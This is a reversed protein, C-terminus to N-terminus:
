LSVIRRICMTVNSVSFGEDTRFIYIYYMGVSDTRDCSVWSTRLIDFILEFGSFITLFAPPFPFHSHFPNNQKTHNSVPHKNPTPNEPWVVPVHKHNAYITGSSIVSRGICQRRLLAPFRPPKSLHGGWRDNATVLYARAKDNILVGRAKYSFRGINWNWVTYVAHTWTNKLAVVFLNM